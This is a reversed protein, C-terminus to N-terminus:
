GELNVYLFLSKYSHVGIYKRVKLVEVRKTAGFIDLSALISIIVVM